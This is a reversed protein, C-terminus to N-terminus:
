SFLDRSRDGKGIKPFAQTFSDSGGWLKFILSLMSNSQNGPNLQSAHCASAKERMENVSKYNIKIHPPYDPGSVIKDLNIDENKGYNSTNVKFFKMLKILFRFIKKSFFHFLLKKPKYVEGVEPFEKENSAKNFAEVTVQHTYIHDPHHYGGEPDFTLVVDPKFNRIYQVIKEVVENMPANILSKPNGNEKSGVMGSDCYNLFEVQALGLHKAACLLEATRLDAISEYNELFKPDVEGAEGRTLCILHIEYGKSSYLALTGGMGFSEDDPHALVALIKESKNMRM